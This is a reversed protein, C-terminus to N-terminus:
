GGQRRIRTFAGRFHDYGFPPKEKQGERILFIGQGQELVTGVCFVGLDRRQKMRSFDSAKVTFVLEFDEGGSLAFDLASSGLIDATKRTALSIPVKDVYIEAGVGSEDCIHRVESALGDSVDIMASVYPAILPVIDLRSRPELYKQLVAPPIGRSRCASLSRFKRLADLGAKSAGLPGTVCIFDGVRAGSRLRLLKKSVEGLITITVSFQKGHTINGGLLSIGYYRSRRLFGHYFREICELSLNRRLVLSVFFYKPKGGMAAIDSVNVEVAKYGIQEHTFWDLRFHDGEVLTDTSILECYRGRDIVAADDGIGRVVCPDHVKSCDRIWQILDIESRINM